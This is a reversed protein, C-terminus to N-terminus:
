IKDGFAKVWANNNFMIVNEIEKGSELEIKKIVKVQMPRDDKATQQVFAAFQNQAFPLPLSLNQIVQNGLTVIIQCSEELGFNNFSYFM